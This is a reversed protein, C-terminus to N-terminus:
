LKKCMGKLAKKLTKIKGDLKYTIVTNLLYEQGEESCMHEINPDGYLAGRDEHPPISLPPTYENDIVDIDKNLKFSIVTIPQSTNNQIQYHCNGGWLLDFKQIAIGDQEGASLVSVNFFFTPLAALGIITLTILHPKSITKGKM